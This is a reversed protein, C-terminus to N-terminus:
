RSRARCASLTVPDASATSCRATPILEPPRSPQETGPLRLAVAEYFDLSRRAIVEGARGIVIPEDPVQRRTVLAPAKRHGPAVRRALGAPMKPVYGPVGHSGHRRHCSPM